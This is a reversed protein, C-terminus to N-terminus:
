GLVQKYVRLLNGGMVKKVDEDSYGRRVLAETVTPMKTVDELGDIFASGERIGVWMGEMFGPAPDSGGDTWVEGEWFDPGLGVYDVGVLEAVYDIHNVLDEATPRTEGDGVYNHMFSLGLVGGKAALAKIQEDTRNRVHERLAHVCSHTDLFPGECTEVVDWFAEDNLHAVDVLMGLRNCEKVVDIGFRTLRSGTRELHGDGVRNRGIDVLQLQRLGQRYFSRLVALSDMNLKGTLPRAGELTMLVAIKGAAVTEEIDKHNLCIAMTDSSEEAELLLMDMVRISGWWFLDSRDTLSTSDGGVVMMIVNVGGQRIRPAYYNSFVATNGRNRQYALEIMIHNHADVVIAQKHLEKARSEM